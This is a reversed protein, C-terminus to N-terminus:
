YRQIYAPYRGIEPPIAPTGTFIGYVGSGSGTMSAYVAGSAYLLQKISGIDPYESFVTGEFHNHLSGHWDAPPLKIVEKVPRGQRSPRIQRYAKRTEVNIGPMVLLLTYGSLDMSLPELIEGRGTALCPENLIFFACDSGLRSAYELLVRQPLGLGFLENLLRLTFAADSSGGGLGAGMPIRKHLHLKVPPVPHGERLLRLARICLNDTGADLPIGTLNFRDGKGAEDKGAPVIELVDTLGVPLFASELDHYGDPRKSLIRLGLNVKANPFVIM